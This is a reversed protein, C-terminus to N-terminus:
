YKGMLIRCMKRYAKVPDRERASRKKEAEVVQVMKQFTEPDDKELHSFSKKWEEFCVPILERSSINSRLLNVLGAMMDKGSVSSGPAAEEQRPALSTANRWVFLLALVFLAIFVGELHYKRILTAVGQSEMVGFHTEDFLIKSNEGVLWALLAPHREDRLAENSLFYSDASLVIAGKGFSREILVPYPGRRYIVRWADDTPKFYLATHWSLSEPLALVQPASLQALAWSGPKDADHQEPLESEEFKFGWRDVLSFLEETEEVIQEEEIAEDSREEGSDESDTEDKETSDPGRLSLGEKTVPSFSVFLRGGNKLIEEVAEVAEKDAAYLFQWVSVGQYFITTDKLDKLETFFKYNRSCSFDSLRDFSEYLAKTGLPDSRLSSYPPYVDGAEYRLKLLRVTGYLFFGALIAIVTYLLFPRAKM